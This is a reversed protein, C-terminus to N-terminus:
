IITLIMLIKKYWPLAQYSRQIVKTTFNNHEPDNEDSPLQSGVGKFTIRM